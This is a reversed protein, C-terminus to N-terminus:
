GIEENFDSRIYLPYQEEIEKVINIFEKIIEKGSDNIENLIIEFLGDEEVSEVNNKTVKLYRYTSETLTSIAACVIDKGIEAYGSHGYVKIKKNSVYIITM